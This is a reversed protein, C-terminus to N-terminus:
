LAGSPAVQIYFQEGEENVQPRHMRSVPFDYYRRANSRPFGRYRPLWGDLQEPVSVDIRICRRGQRRVRM